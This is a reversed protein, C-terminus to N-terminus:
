APELPEVLIKAAEASRMVFETRGIRLKLPGRRGLRQILQVRCGPLLGLGALRERWAPECDLQTVRASSGLTLSDLTL